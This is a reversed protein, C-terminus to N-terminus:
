WRLEAGWQIGHIVLDRQHFLPQPRNQGSPLVAPANPVFTLDVVRDIQDGPRIVNTWLLFNYGTFVRLTETLNYGLNVTVEPVVSFRDRTFRGLNPGAAILGGRFNMPPMDPRQRVQFGNIELVQHTTGLAVSTRTNLFWRGAQREYFAGIQGGNFYNRTTFQDQVLVQTGVPDPVVLRSGGPGIVAINETIILSERLNLHRYGIFWEGRAACNTFWCTRVNVDAGWLRSEGTVTLTGRLIGPVAVAEGTEGIVTDTGPLTNPAFVPRTILPFQDSTVSVTRSREGLFFFSGDIGCSHNETIWFGSRIRLGSRTSDILPGPGIIAATGPEGLYGNLATNANTTGLVPIAFGPMWWLLYEGSIFARSLGANDPDAYDDGVLTLDRHFGHHFLDRLRPYDRSLQIAPSGFTERHRGHKAAHLPYLFEAPQLEPQFAPLERPAPLTDSSPPMPEPTRASPMERPLPDYIFPVAPALEDSTVVARTAAGPQVHVPVPASTSRVSTNPLQAMAPSSRSIGGGTLPGVHTMGPASVPGGARVVPNESTVSQAAVIQSSPPLSDVTRAPVWVPGAEARLALASPPSGIQVSTPLLGPATPPSAATMAGGALLVGLGMAKIRLRKM